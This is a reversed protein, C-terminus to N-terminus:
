ATEEMDPESLLILTQPLATIISVLVALFVPGLWRSWDPRLYECLSILAFWAISFWLILRYAKFHVRDRQHLEREDFKFDAMIREAEATGRQLKLAESDPRPAWGFPKTMWRSLTGMNLVVVVAALLTIPFEMRLLSFMRGVVFACVPVFFLWYLALIWIRRNRTALLKGGNYPSSPIM